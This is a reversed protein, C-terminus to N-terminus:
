AQRLIISCLRTGRVYRGDVKHLHALQLVRTACVKRRLKEVVNTWNFDGIVQLLNKDSERPVISEM